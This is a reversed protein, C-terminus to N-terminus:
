QSLKYIIASWDLRYFGVKWSRKWLYKDPM